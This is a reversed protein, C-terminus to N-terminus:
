ETAQHLRDDEIALLGPLLLYIMMPAEFVKIALLGEGMEPATQRHLPNDAEEPSSDVRKYRSRDYRNGCFRM